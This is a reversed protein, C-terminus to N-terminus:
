KKASKSPKSCGLFRPAYKHPNSDLQGIKCRCHKLFLFSTGLSLTSKTQEQKWTSAQKSRAAASFHRTNSCPDGAIRRTSTGSPRRRTWTDTSAPRFSCPRSSPTGCGTRMLIRMRMSAYEINTPQEARDLTLARWRCRWRESGYQM